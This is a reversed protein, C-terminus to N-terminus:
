NRNSLLPLSNELQAILIFSALGENVCADAYIKRSHESHLDIKQSYPMTLGEGELQLLFIVLIICFM